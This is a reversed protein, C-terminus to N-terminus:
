FGINQNRFHVVKGNDLAGNMDYDSANSRFNEVDRVLITFEIMIKRMIRAV